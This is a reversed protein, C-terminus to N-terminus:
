VQQGQGWRRGRCKKKLVRIGWYIGVGGVVVAIPILIRPEFIYIQYIVAAVIALVTICVYLLDWVTVPEENKQLRNHLYHPCETDDESIYHGCNWRGRDCTACQSLRSM